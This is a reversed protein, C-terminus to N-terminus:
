PSVESQVLWTVAYCLMVGAVILALATAHIATRRRDAPTLYTPIAALMPLGTLREVQAASRVRPDFRVRGFLVGLPLLIALLLGAVAFHVLRPGSPHQPLGAAQATHFALGQQSADLDMSMRANERRRLLDEYIGRNIEYDRVVAALENGAHAADASGLEVKLAAEAEDLRSATATSEGRADALEGRLAEYPADHAADIAPHLPSEATTAPAPEPQDSLQAVLAGERARQEVLDIRAQEVQGLLRSVRANGDGAQAADTAAQRYRKLRDEADTLKRQYAKAQRDIFDFAGRSEREKAALSERVLLEGLQRTIRLARAPDGDSYSIGVRDGAGAIEIGDGIAEAMRDQEVVSRQETAGDAALLENIVKRSSLLERALAVRDATGAQITHDGPLAAAADSQRIVITTSSEYRRPLGIGIALASIAIVAFTAGLLLMRRRAEAALVPLLEGMPVRAAM